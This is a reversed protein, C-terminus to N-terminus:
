FKLLRFIKVVRVIRSLKRVRSVSAVQTTDSGDLFVQLPVCAVLDTLFWTKLYSVVITKSKTILQGESDIYASFFTVIIDIFFLTDITLDVGSSFDTESEWFAVKYPVFTISYIILLLMLFDWSVKLSDDPYIIWRKQSNEPLQRLKEDQIFLTHEIDSIVTTQERNGTRIVESSSSGPLRNVTQSRVRSMSPNEM